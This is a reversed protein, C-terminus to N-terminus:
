PLADYYGGVDVLYPAESFGAAWFKVRCDGTGLVSANAVTSQGSEWNLLSTGPPVAATAPATTLFGQGSAYAATVNAAVALATDPLLGGFRMDTTRPEGLLGSPGGALPPDLVVRSDYVRTPPLARYEAGTVGPPLDAAAIFYGVVDVLFHTPAGSGFVTIRRGASVQTSSFNAVRQGAAWNIVSTPPLLQGGAAVALHGPGTSEAVTLNYAVATAREPVMGGGSVDVLRQQGDGLKGGSTRSSYVRTPEVPVFVTADPVDAAAAYYGILDVIVHASGNSGNYVFLDGLAPQGAQALAVTTANAFTRGPTQWNILSTRTYDAAPASGPGVSAYGWGTQGTITVNVAVSTASAPMSGPMDVFTVGGPPLPAAAAGARTDLLRTPNVAVFRAAQTDVPTVSTQRSGPNSPGAANVARLSLQVAVGPALGGIALPPTTQAPSLPTWTSGNDTSYEYNTIPSGGDGRPAFDLIAAGEAAWARVDAWYLTDPAGSGPTSTLALTRAGGAALMGVHRGTGLPPTVTVPVPYRQVLTPLQSPDTGFEGDGLQGEYASGWCLSRGLKTSACTHRSGAAILDFQQSGGPLVTAPYWLVPGPQAASGAGGASAPQFAGVQGYANSGWCYAAGDTDGSGESKIRPLACVHNDGVTMVAIQASKTASTGDYPSPLWLPSPTTRLQDPFPAVGLQGVSNDGWCFMPATSGALLSAVACTHREGAGVYGLVNAGTQARVPVSSAVTTANGLQGRDNAGWCFVGAAGAAACTHRAGAAISHLRQGSWAGSRAVAVPSTRDVTTGDGLQGDSNRGWCFLGDAADIACTHSWGVSVAVVRRGALAGSDDVWVPVNSSANVGNGLFAEGWCAVRGATTVVCASDRGADGAVLTQGALVGTMSVASPVASLGTTGDGVPGRGWSVAQDLPGPPADDARAPSAGLALVLLVLLALFMTLQRLVTKTQVPSM